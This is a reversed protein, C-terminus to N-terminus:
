DGGTPVLTKWNQRVLPNGADALESDFSENQARIHVTIFPIELDEHIETVLPGLHTVQSHSSVQIEVSSAEPCLQLCHIQLDLM